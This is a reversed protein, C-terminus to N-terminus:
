KIVELTFSILQEHKEKGNRTHKDHTANISTNCISTVLDFSKRKIPLPVLNSKGNKYM